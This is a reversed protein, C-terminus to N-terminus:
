IILVKKAYFVIHIKIWQLSRILCKSFKRCFNGNGIIRKVLDPVRGFHLHLVKKINKHSALRLLLFDKLLGLSASTCLHMVDPKHYDMKIRVENCKKSIERFGFYFRKFGFDNVEMVKRKRDFSIPIIELTEDNAIQSYDVIIKGWIGIGGSIVNEGYLYPSCFLVKTKKM